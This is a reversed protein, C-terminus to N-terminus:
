ELPRVEELLLVWAILAHQEEDTLLCLAAVAESLDYDRVRCAYCSQIFALVNQWGPTHADLKLAAQLVLDTTTTNQTMNPVETLASAVRTFGGASPHGAESSHFVDRGKGQALFRRNSRFQAM